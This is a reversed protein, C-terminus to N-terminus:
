RDNRKYKRRRGSLTLSTAPPTDSSGEEIVRKRGEAVLADMRRKIYRWRQSLDSFESAIDDSVLPLITFAGGVNGRDIVRALASLPKVLPSVAQKEQRTGKTGVHIARQERAAQSARLLVEWKKIVRNGPASETNLLVETVVDQIAATTLNFATALYGVKLLFGPFLDLKALAKLQALHLNCTPMEAIELQSRVAECRVAENITATKLGFERALQGVPLAYDRLMALCQNIAEERTQRGGHARNASRTLLAQVWPRTDLVVYVELEVQSYPSKIDDAIARVAATRQNGSATGFQSGVLPLVAPRPFTDGSLMALAFEEVVGEDLTVRQRAQNNLGWERDVQDLTITRIQYNVKLRRMQAELPLDPGWKLRLIKEPM